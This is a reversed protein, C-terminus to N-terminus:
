AAPPQWYLPPQAVLPRAACAGTRARGAPLARLGCRGAWPLWRQCLRQLRHARQLSCVQTALTASREGGPRRRQAWKSCAASPAPRLAATAPCEELRACRPPSLSACRGPWATHRVRWRHRSRACVAAPCGCTAVAALLRLRPPLRCSHRCARHRHPCPAPVPRSLGAKCCIGAWRALLGARCGPRSWGAAPHRLLRCLAPRPPPAARRLM